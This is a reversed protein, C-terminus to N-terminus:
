KIIDITEEIWVLRSEGNNEILFGINYIGERLGILEKSITFKSKKTLDDGAYPNDTLDIDIVYTVESSNLVLNFTSDSSDKNVAFIYGTMSLYSDNVLEMSWVDYMVEMEDDSINQLENIDRIEYPAEYLLQAYHFQNFTFNWISNLGAFILVACILISLLGEKMTKWVEKWPCLMSLFAYMLIYCPYFYRAEIHTGALHILAPVIFAFVYLGYKRIWNLYLKGVKIVKSTKNKVWTFLGLSSVFWLLYNTVMIIYQKANLDTVYVSNGYRPDLCTALKTAYLGLFEFPYKLFLKLIVTLTVDDKSINEVALLKDMLTDYSIMVVEPHIGSVNTEYRLNVFGNYYEQNQITTTFFIPVEYSIKGNCYFNILFQPITSILIGILMMILISARKKVDSGKKEVSDSFLVILVAIFCAYKCGSRIYYSIGMFLGALLSFFVQLSLRDSKQAILLLLFGVAVTIVAPVDSLPYIILGNWFLMTLVLPVIRSFWGVKRNFINEIMEPVAYVLGTSFFLSLFLCYGIKTNMGMTKFVALLLPWAYGRLGFLIKETNNVNLNGSFDDFLYNKIYDGMLDYGYADGYFSINRNIFLDIFIIIFGILIPYIKYHQNIVTNAKKIKDIIQNM